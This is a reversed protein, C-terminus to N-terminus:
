FLDVAGSKVQNALEGSTVLTEYNQVNNRGHAKAYYLASDACSGRCTTSCDGPLIRTYGASM